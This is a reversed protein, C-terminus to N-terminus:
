KYTKTSRTFLGQSFKGSEGCTVIYECDVQDSSVFLAVESQVQLGEVLCNEDLWLSEQESVRVDGLFTEKFQDVVDQCDTHDGGQERLFLFVSKDPRKIFLHPLLFQWLSFLESPVVEDVLASLVQMDNERHRWSTVLESDPTPVERSENTICIYIPEEWPRFIRKSCDGTVKHAFDREFIVFSIFHSLM